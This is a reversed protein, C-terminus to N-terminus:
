QILWQGFAEVREQLEKEDVYSHKYDTKGDWFYCKLQREDFWREHMLNICEQAHVANAFKVKCIGLPNDEYLEIRLPAGVKTSIEEALEERIQNM